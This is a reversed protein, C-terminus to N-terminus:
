QLKAAVKIDPLTLSEVKNKKLIMKIILDTKHNWMFKLIIKERESFCTVLIKILPQLSDTCQKPKYQIKVIRFTKKM